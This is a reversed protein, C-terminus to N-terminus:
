LDCSRLFEEEYKLLDKKRDKIRKAPIGAYIGWPTTSKNVFAMAGVSCGEALNVGPMIVSHSGIIVHRGIHIGGHEVQKYEDPIQSNSISTGHYDDTSSFVSVRFALCAFDDIVIEDRSSSVLCHPTLYAYRGLTLPGKVLCFDDIRSNDGLSIKEPCYIAAKDSIKVDNGLSKFNLAELQEQTLYAM